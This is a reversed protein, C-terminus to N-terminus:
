TAATKTGPKRSGNRHKEVQKKWEKQSEDVIGYYGWRSKVIDGKEFPNLVPIYADEFGEPQIANIFVFGPEATDQCSCSIWTGDKKFEAEGVTLTDAGVGAEPADELIVKDIKFTEDCHEKGYSIAADISAFVSDVCDEEELVAMYICGSVHKMFMNRSEEERDLKERIQIKLVDDGCRM